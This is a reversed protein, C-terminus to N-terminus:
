KASLAAINQQRRKSSWKVSELIFGADNNVRTSWCSFRLAAAAALENAEDDDDM